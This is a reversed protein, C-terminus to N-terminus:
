IGLDVESESESESEAARIAEASAFERYARIVAELQAIREQARAGDGEHM